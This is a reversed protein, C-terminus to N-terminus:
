PSATTEGPGPEIEFLTHLGTVHLLRLASPGLSTLTLLKGNDAAHRRIKLLIGLGSSDIFSVEGLDLVLHDCVELCGTARAVFEESSEIDVEGSVRLLRSDDLSEETFQAM